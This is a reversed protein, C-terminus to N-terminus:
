DKVLMRKEIVEGDGNKVFIQKVYRTKDDHTIIKAAIIKQWGRSNTLEIGDSCYVKYVFM